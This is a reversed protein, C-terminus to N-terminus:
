GTEGSLLNEEKVMIGTIISREEYGLSPLTEQGNRLLKLHKSHIISPHLCYYSTRQGEWLPLESM